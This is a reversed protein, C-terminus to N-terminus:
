DIVLDLTTTGPALTDLHVAGDGRGAATVTLVAGRGRVLPVTLAGGGGPVEAGWGEAKGGAGGDFRMEWSVQMAPRGPSEFVRVALSEPAEEAGAVIWDVPTGPVARLSRTGPRWGEVAGLSLFCGEGAPAWPFPPLAPLSFRGDAGTVATREESTYGDIISMPVGPVGGGDFGRVRGEVLGLRVMPLDVVGAAGGEEELEVLVEGALAGDSTRGLLYWTGPGVPGVVARGEGDTVPNARLGEIVDGFVSQSLPRKPSRLLARVEMGAVPRGGEDRAIVLLARADALVFDFTRNRSRYPLDFSGPAFDPHLVLAEGGIHGSGPLSWRGDGDTRTERLRFSGTRDMGEVLRALSDGVFVRAGAVPAGRADTVRGQYRLGSPTNWPISVVLDGEQLGTAPDVRPRPFPASIVTGEVTTVWCSAARERPVAPLLFRGGADVAAERFWPPRGPDGGWEEVRVSGGALPKESGAFLVRGALDLGRPVRLDITTTAGEEISVPEQKGPGHRPSAVFVRWTGKALNGITFSGDLGTVGAAAPAHEAEPQSPLVEVTAGAVPADGGEELVRGSLVGAQWLAVTIEPGPGTAVGPARGPASAEVRWLAAAPLDRFGATGDAGAVAEALVPNPFPSRLARRHALVRVAAGRLPIGRADTVRVALARMEGHPALAEGAGPSRPHVPFEPPPDRPTRARAVGGGGGDGGRGRLWVMVGTNVGLLFVALATWGLARRTM